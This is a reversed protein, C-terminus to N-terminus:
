GTGGWETKLQYKREVDPETKMSDKRLFNDVIEM